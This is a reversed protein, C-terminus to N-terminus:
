RLASNYAVARDQTKMAALVGPVSPFVVNAMYFCALIECSLEDLNKAVRSSSSPTRAEDDIERKEEVETKGPKPTAPGQWPFDPPTMPDGNPHPAPLRSCGTASVHLSKQPARKLRSATNEACCRGM